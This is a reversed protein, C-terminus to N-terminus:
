VNKQADRSTDFSNKVRRLNMRKLAYSISNKSVNFLVSRERLLSDPNEKVDKRLAEWDMKRHHTRTYKKPQLSESKTWNYVTQRAVSFRRSAEVKSGGSQVFDVVISRLDVSYTM